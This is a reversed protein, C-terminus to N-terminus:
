YLFALEKMGETVNVSFYKWEHKSDNTDADKLSPHANQFFQLVGSVWGGNEAVSDKRYLFSVKGPKVFFLRLVFEFAVTTDRAAAEGCVLSTGGPSAKCKECDKSIWSM